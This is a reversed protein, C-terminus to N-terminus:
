ELGGSQDVSALDAVVAKLDFNDRYKEPRAAKLLFILLTDSKVTEETTKIVTRGKADITTETRVRKEGEAARSWAEMELRDVAEDMADLVLGDFEPNRGRERYLTSRSVGAAECADRVNGLRAYNRVFRERWDRAPKGRRVSESM